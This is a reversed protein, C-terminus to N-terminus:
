NQHLFSGQLTVHGVEENQRIDVEVDFGKEIARDIYDPHNERDSNPGTVNGRHSILIPSVLM